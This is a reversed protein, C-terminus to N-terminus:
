PKQEDLEQVFYSEYTYWAPLGEEEERAIRGESWHAEKRDSFVFLEDDDGPMFRITWRAMREIARRTPPEGAIGSYRRIFNRATETPIYRNLFWEILGVQAPSYTQPTPHTKRNNM